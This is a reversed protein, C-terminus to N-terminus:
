VNKKWKDRNALGIILFILGLAFLPIGVFFPIQLIFYVVMLVIGFPIWIIGMIYFSRYNPEELKGEKKKKWFMWAMLLGLLLVIAFIAATIVIVM